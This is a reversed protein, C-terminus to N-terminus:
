QNTFLAPELTIEDSRIHDAQAQALAAELQKESVSVAEGPMPIRYVISGSRNVIKVEESETDAVAVQDDDVAVHTAHPFLVHGVENGPFEVITRRKGEATVEVLYEMPRGDGDLGGGLPPGGDVFALSGDSFVESLRAIAIPHDFGSVNFRRTLLLEGSDSFTTLRRDNNLDWVTLGDQGRFLALQGGSGAFEGPGGGKGGATWLEGTWPNLFLFTSGDLLVIREESLIRGKSLLGIESVAANPHDGSDFLPTAALRATVEQDAGSSPDAIAAALGREGPFVGMETVFTPTGTVGISAALRIDQEVRRSTSDDDLCSEFAQLDKIGLSPAWDLWDSEGLWDDNTLLSAHAQEFVGSEEACVAALSAQRAKPHIELPLHRVVINVGRSESVKSVEEAIRRCSPCQYDIFEVVTRSPRGQNGAVRSGASILVPWVDAISRKTRWSEVAASVRSGIVGTPSLLVVVLTVLIAIRAM